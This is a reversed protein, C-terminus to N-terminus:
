KPSSDDELLRDLQDRLRRMMGFLAAVKQDRQPDLNDKFWEELNDPHVFHFGVYRRVVSEVKQLRDWSKSYEKKVDATVEERIEWRRTVARAEVYAELAESDLEKGEWLWIAKPVIPKEDAVRRAMAAAFWMPPEGIERWKANKKKRLGGKGGTLELLGWGEPIEDVLVMGVPTVFFCENSLEEATVRKEPNALEQNFDSRTVKIEYVIRHYKKSPWVNFAFFDLRRNPGTFGTRTSIEVFCAWHEREHRIRLLEIIKRTPDSKVM